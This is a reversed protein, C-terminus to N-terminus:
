RLDAIAAAAPEEGRRLIKAFIKRAEEIVADCNASVPSCGCEHILFYALDEIALRGGPLHLKPFHRSGRFSTPTANVHLHARRERPILEGSQINERDYEWRIIWSGDDEEAQWQYAYRLTTLWLKGDRRSERVGVTHAAILWTGDTLEFPRPQNMEDFASIVWQFDTWDDKPVPLTVINDRTVTSRLVHGYLAAFAYAM